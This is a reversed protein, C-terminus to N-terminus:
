LLQDEVCTEGAWVPISGYSNSAASITIVCGKMRRIAGRSLADNLLNILTYLEM